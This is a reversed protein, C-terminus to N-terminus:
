QNNVIRKISELLSDRHIGGLLSELRQIIRERDQLVEECVEKTRNPLLRVFQHYLCGNHPCVVSPFVTVADGLKGFTHTLPEISIRGGCEPCVLIAGGTSTPKWTGKERTDSQFFLNSM